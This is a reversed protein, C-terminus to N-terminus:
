IWFLRVSGIETYYEYEEPDNTNDAYVSTVDGLSLFVITASLIICWVRKLKDM